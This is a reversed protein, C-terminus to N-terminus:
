LNLGSYIIPGMHQHKLVIDYFWKLLPIVVAEEELWWTTHAPPTWRDPLQPLPRRRSPGVAAGTWPLHAASYWRRIVVFEPPQRNGMVDVQQLCFFVGEIDSCLVQFRGSLCRGLFRISMSSEERAVQSDSDCDKELLFIDTFKIHDMLPWSITFCSSAESRLHGGGDAYRFDEVTIRQTKAATNCLQDGFALKGMKM